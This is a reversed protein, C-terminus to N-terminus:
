KVVECIIFFTLPVLFKSWIKYSLKPLKKLFQPKNPLQKRSYNEIKKYCFFSFFMNLLQFVTTQKRNKIKSFMFCIIKLYYRKTTKLQKWM